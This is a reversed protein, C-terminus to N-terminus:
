NAFLTSYSDESFGVSCIDQNELVPRKILTPERIMLRVAEAEGLGLRKEEPLKRWSQGRKNLLAEWGHREVWALLRKEPLGDKRFDHFQYDIDHEALWRRAKRVTDCNGIGYLVVTNSIM